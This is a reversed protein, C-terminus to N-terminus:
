GRKAPSFAHFLYVPSTHQAVGTRCDGASFEFRNNLNRRAACGAIEVTVGDDDGIGTVDIGSEDSLEVTFARPPQVTVTGNSVAANPGSRGGSGSPRVV